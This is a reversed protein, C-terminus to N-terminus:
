QVTFRETADAIVPEETTLFLLTLPAALLVLVWDSFLFLVGGAVVLLSVLGLTSRRRAALYHAALRAIDRTRLDLTSSLALAHGAWLLVALAVVALAIGYGAPVAAVDLNGLTYGIVALVLLTPVWWRLVDAANLRYGRWFHRAPALDRDARFVRWAFVAASLAPGVPVSLAAILWANSPDRELFLIAALAPATTLVILVEIMLYWYVIASWRAIVGPGVEDADNPGTAMPRPERITTESIM